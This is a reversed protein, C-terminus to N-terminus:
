FLFQTWKFYKHVLHIHDLLGGSLYIEIHMRSFTFICKEMRYQDMKLFKGLMNSIGELFKHYWFLLPLNHLRVSVQTKTVVILIVDFYPFWPTLLLGEMGWFWPRENLVFDLDGQNDFQVVFLGMSFQYIDCKNTWLTFLCKHLDESKPWFGNFICILDRTQLTKFIGSVESFNVLLDPEIEM